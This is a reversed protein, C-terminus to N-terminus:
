KFKLGLTVIDSTLGTSRTYHGYRLELVALQKMGFVGNEPAWRVGLGMLHSDFKSLDYDSTYFRDLQTHQGYAAFYKVATQAYYRYSPSISLYPNIKVPLELSATHANLGWDDTYYRYYGRLIFRNGIFYNARIGIPIKMRNDPLNESQVTGDDFYVRHFRTALLGQQYIADALIAIHLRKNIVQSFVLSGSYSTRPEFPYSDDEGTSGPPRLEIPLIVKWKDFYAQLALSVDTNKDKSTKAVHVGIGTSKYDFENSLSAIAGISWGTNPNNYTWDLKPYIRTDGSSASSITSPDIKDSSASSYNDIGLGATIIHERGKKDKKLLRLDIQNAFDTLHESGVGGTVAANNGEQIYYSSVFNVEELTLKRDDYNSDTQAFAGFLNMFAAIFGLTLKKM